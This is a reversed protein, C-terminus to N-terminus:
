LANAARDDTPIEALPRTLLNDRENESVYEAREVGEGAQRQQSENTPTAIRRFTFHNEILLLACSYLHMDHPRVAM